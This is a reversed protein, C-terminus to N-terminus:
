SNKVATLHHLLKDATKQFTYKEVLDDSLSFPTKDSLLEMMKDKLDGSDGARFFTVPFGEYVERFVPIDSILARTGLVMAELPPLGFGEYLSPQVLLKATSLLEVLRENSIFNTFTVNESGLSEIKNLVANDRTRFKEKNGIIILKHLLGESRAMCFADILTNLGKHKKINGVFVITEEKKINKKRSNLYIPQIGSYTVNIPKEIGLHYNIRSKSFESVTFIEHSKRYARRFFFMRIALGLRSTLEPM